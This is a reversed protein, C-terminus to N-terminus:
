FLRKKTFLLKKLYSPAKIEIYRWTFYSLAVVSFLIFILLLNNTYLSGTDIIRVGNVFSSYDTDWINNAVIVFLILASIVFVHVMYISYSIQGIFVLPKIKFVYKSLFGSEYSFILVTFGFVVLYCSELAYYISYFVLLISSVELFSWNFLSLGKILKARIDYLLTGFLFFTVGQDAYKSILVNSNYFVSYSFYIVLGLSLIQRLRPKLTFIYFFLFYLYFEVSISWSPYNFSSHEINPLWAHILLANYLVDNVTNNGEFPANTFQINYYLYVFLKILELIVFILLMFGHLPYIRLFRSIFFNKFSNLRFAYGHSLVFGSLIFFFAVFSDSNKFFVYQSPTNAINLHFFVIFLAALGRFSDLVLFREKKNHNNM